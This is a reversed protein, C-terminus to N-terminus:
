VFVESLSGRSSKAKRKPRRDSAVVEMGDNWEGNGHWNEMPRASVVELSDRLADIQWPLPLRKARLNEIKRRSTM